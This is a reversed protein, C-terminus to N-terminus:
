VRPARERGEPREWCSSGSRLCFLFAWHTKCCARHFVATGMVLGVGLARGEGPWCEVDVVNEEVLLYCGLTLTVPFRTSTDALLSRRGPWSCGGGPKQSITIELERVSM